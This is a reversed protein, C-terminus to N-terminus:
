RGPPLYRRALLDQRTELSVSKGEVIVATANTSPELPDGDWVVLDADQGPAILGAPEGRRWIAIPNVTVARLAEAYSLGNSVAIGAAERLALGANYNQELRGGALGFAVMVGAKALIAANTQRAGLEDFTYPLNADPDLVVPIRAAALAPAARWAEGGGVIVVRVAYDSALRIAQRIDSERHTLIALPLRGALVDRLAASQAERAAPRPTAPAPARADDLAARLLAWQAGRSGAARPWASGGIVVFLAARAHDVIDPGERLRITAALGSFPAAGSAAPFSLARTVGDARALEVLTSNANLGLTVDFAPGLAEGAAALDRTDQASTIETLGLQAAANVLGATVPHGAADIVTAGAPPPGKSAVSVIKGADVVITADAIPEAAQGTWAQAHVIALPAAGAAQAATALALGVILALRRVGPRRM